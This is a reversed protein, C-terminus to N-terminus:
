KRLLNTNNYLNKKVNFTKIIKNYIGKKVHTTKKTKPYIFLQMLM